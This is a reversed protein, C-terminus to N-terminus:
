LTLLQCYNYRGKTAVFGIGTEQAKQIAIEMAKRGIVAGLGNQGDLYATSVTQNLVVPLINADTTGDQIDRIYM